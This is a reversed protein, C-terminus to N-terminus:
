SLEATWDLGRLPWVPAPWDRLGGALRLTDPMALLRAPWGRPLLGFIVLFPGVKSPSPWLPGRTPISRNVALNHALGHGLKM